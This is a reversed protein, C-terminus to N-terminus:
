EQSGGEALIKMVKTISDATMDSQDLNFLEGKPFQMLDHRILIEHLQLNINALMDNSIAWAAPSQIYVKNAGKWQEMLNESILADRYIELGFRAMSESKFSENIRQDISQIVQPDNSVGRIIAKMIGNFIGPLIDEDPIQNELKQILAARTVSILSSTFSLTHAPDTSLTVARFLSGTAQRTVYTSKEKSQM